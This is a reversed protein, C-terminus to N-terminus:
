SKNKHKEWEKELKQLIVICHVYEALGVLALAFMWAALPPIKDLVAYTGSAVGFLFMITADLPNLGQRRNKYEERFEEEEKQSRKEHM